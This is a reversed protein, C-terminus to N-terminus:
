QKNGTAPTTKTTTTAPKKAPAATKAGTAGKAGTTATKSGAADKNEKYRMDPTGDKKLHQTNKADTTKGTTKAAAPKTATKGTTTKAPTTTTNAAGQANVFMFTVCVILLTVITKKM